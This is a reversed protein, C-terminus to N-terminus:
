QQWQHGGHLLDGNIITEVAIAIFYHDWSNDIEFNSRLDVAALLALFSSKYTQQPERVRQDWIDIRRLSMM